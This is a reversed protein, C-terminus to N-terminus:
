VMSFDSGDVQEVEIGESSSMEGNVDRLNKDKEVKM